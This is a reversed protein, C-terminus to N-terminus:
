INGNGKRLHRRCFRCSLINYFLSKTKLQTVYKRQIHKLKRNDQVCLNLVTIIINLAM